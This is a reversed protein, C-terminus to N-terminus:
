VPVLSPFALLSTPVTFLGVPLGLVSFYGARRRVPRAMRREASSSVAQPGVGV